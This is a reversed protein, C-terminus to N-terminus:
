TTCCQGHGMINQQHGTLLYPGDSNTTANLTSIRATKKDEKVLKLKEEKKSIPILILGGTDLNTCKKIRKSRQNVEVIKIQVSPLERKFEWKSLINAVHSKDKFTRIRRDDHIGDQHAQEAFDETFDGIGNFQM